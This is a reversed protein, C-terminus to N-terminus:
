PAFGAWAAVQTWLSGTTSRKASATPQGLPGTAGVADVFLGHSATAELSPPADLHPRQPIM